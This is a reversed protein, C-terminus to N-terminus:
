RDFGLRNLRGRWVQNDAIIWIFNHEDVTAAIPGSVGLLASPLHLLGDEKWTIGHDNTVFIKELARMGDGAGGFAITRGDYPLLVMDELVPCTYPNEKTPVFYTWGCAEEADLPTWMKSWVTCRRDDPSCTGCVFIRTNGNNQSYCLSQARHVLLLNPNDDLPEPHWEVGNDSRCVTGDVLAYYFRDTLALLKLGSVTAGLVNWEVGDASSYLTGESTSVFLSDNREQLTETMAALPLNTNQWKWEGTTQLGSRVGMKVGSTTKGLVCLKHDFVTARPEAMDSLGPVDKEVCDWTMSDGEVQHVNVKLTYVRTALGSQSGVFLQLPQSVDLSDTNNYTVWAATTDAAPRYMLFLGEYTIDVLVSTLISNYLLSDRNEITLSRQDITMAFNSGSFTSFYISDNGLSDTVHFARKVSGLSVDSIFCEDSLVPEEEEKMCSVFIAPVLLLLLGLIRKAINLNRM